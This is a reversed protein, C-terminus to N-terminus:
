KGLFDNSNNFASRSPLLSTNNALGLFAAAPENLCSSEFIVAFLRKDAKIYEITPSSLITECSFAKFVAESYLKGTLGLKLNHLFISSTISYM